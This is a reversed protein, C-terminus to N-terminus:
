ENSMNEKSICLYSKKGNSLLKKLLFCVNATPLRKCLWGQLINGYHM